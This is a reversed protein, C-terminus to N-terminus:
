LYIIYNYLIICLSCIYAFPYTCITYITSYEHVSHLIIIPRKSPLTATIVPPLEPTPAAVAFNNAFSPAVTTIVALLSVASSFTASSILAAPPSTKATEVSIDFGSSGSASICFTISLYPFISISTLLAPIRSSPSFGISRNESSSRSRITSVFSFPVIRQM